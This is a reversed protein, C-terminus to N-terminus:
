ARAGSCPRGTRLAGALFLDVADAVQTELDRGDEIGLTALCLADDIVLSLFQQAAREFDKVRLLSRHRRLVAAIAEIAPRRGDAYALRGFEPQRQSEAIIIRHLSVTEPALASSLLHRGIEVLTPELAETSSRFRTFPVLCREILGRLVAGFLESKDSYHAYVTRKSMSAAEAVADISTGDYGLRMFMSGAVELLHEHRRRAEAVTPRGGRGSGGTRIREEAEV